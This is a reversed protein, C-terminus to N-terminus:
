IGLTFKSISVCKGDAGKLRGYIYFSPIAPEVSEDTEETYIGHLMSRFEKNNRGLMNSKGKFYKDFERANAGELITNFSSKFKLEEPLWNPIENSIKLDRTECRSTIM